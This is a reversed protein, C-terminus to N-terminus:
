GANAGALLLGDPAPSTEGVDGARSDGAVSHPPQNPVAHGARAADRELAAVQLVAIRDQPRQM